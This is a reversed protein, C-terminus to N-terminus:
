TAEQEARELLSQLQDKNKDAVASQIQAEFEKIYEM